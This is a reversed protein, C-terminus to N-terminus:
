NVPPYRGKRVEFFLNLMCILCIVNTGNDGGLVRGEEGNTCSTVMWGALCFLFRHM